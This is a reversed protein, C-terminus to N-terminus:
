EEIGVREAIERGMACDACPGAYTRGGHNQGPKHRYQMTKNLRLYHTRGRAGEAQQRHLCHWVRFTANLPECRFFDAPDSLADIALVPLRIPATM